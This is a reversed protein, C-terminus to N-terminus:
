NASVAEQSSVITVIPLANNMDRFYDENIDIDVPLGNGTLTSSVGYQIIGGDMNPSLSGGGNMTLDGECIIIGNVRYNGNFVTTSGKIWYVGFIEINGNITLDGEIYVINPVSGSYYYSGNPYGDPASYNGGHYHGQETALTKFVVSDLSPSPRHVIGAENGSTPPDPPSTGNGYTVNAGSTPNDMDFHANNPPGTGAIGGDTHVGPAVDSNTNSVVTAKIKIQRKAVTTAGRKVKGTAIITYVDSFGDLPNSVDTVNNIITDDDSDDDVIDDDALTTDDDNNGRDLDVASNTSYPSSGSLYPREIWYEATETSSSSVVYPTSRTGTAASPYLPTGAANVSFFRYKADQLAFMAATEALYLAKSSNINTPASIKWRGMVSSFVGGMVSMIVLMTMIAILSVGDNRNLMGALKKLSKTKM